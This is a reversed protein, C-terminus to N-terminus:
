LEITCVIACRQCFMNTYVEANLIDKLYIFWREVKGVIHIIEASYQEEIMKMLYMPPLQIHEFEKQRFCDRIYGTVLKEDNSDVGGTRLVFSSYNHARRPVDLNCIKLKWENEHRMDLIFMSRRMDRLTEAFIIVYRQNSTLVADLNILYGFSISNMQSWKRTKLCYVWPHGQYSAHNVNWGYHYPILLICQKSPIYIDKYRPGTPSSYNSLTDSIKIFRDSQIM